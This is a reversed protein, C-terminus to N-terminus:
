APYGGGFRGCPLDISIMTEGESAVHFLLFLTGGNAIRIELIVKQKMRNIIELLESVENQVKALKILGAYNNFTFDLLENFHM